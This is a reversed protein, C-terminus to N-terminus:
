GQEGGSQQLDANESYQHQLSTVELDVEDEPALRHLDWETIWSKVYERMRGGQVLQTQGETTHAWDHWAHAKLHLARITQYAEQIMSSTPSSLPTKDSEMFRIGLDAQDALLGDTETQTARLRSSIKGADDKGVLVEKKFDDTLAVVVGLGPFHPPQLGGMWRALESYSKARQKLSYRGILEAEDIFLMWGAYGAAKMLRVAFQFRQLALDRTSIKGFTYRGAAGCEKLLKKLEGVGIPDGTWFRTIRHKAEQDASMREYLFLTAAFRSDMQSEPNNLWASMAKYQPNWADCEEAIESLIDGRKQPIVASEIASQYMRIPNYLPTEKSIVVRSCIFRNELALHQLYELVHSKGSGFAGEIITGKSMGDHDPCQKTEEMLRIFRGRVEEQQCGFVTVIHRNPIGSRLGEIIKRPVIADAEVSPSSYQRGVSCGLDDSSPSLQVLPALPNPRSKDRVDSWIRLKLADYRELSRRKDILFEPPAVVVMMLGELEDSSDIFQRLMDYMDLTASPSYYFTTDPETSRKTVFYRAIDLVVVLGGQGTLRVWRAMSALIYRANHRAIKQFILAKKVGSILRLEGCLWGKVASALVQDSDSTGLQSLCISVMAMRFERCLNPDSDLSRELWTQLDRRLLPEKRGNLEAIDHFTFKTREEPIEYSNDTLLRVVFRYALEDWDIQRAIKHVLRDVMHVKTFRADAKSFLFGEEQSVTELQNLFPKHEDLNPLVVFKVSSGGHKQFDQLYEGRVIELWRRMDIYAPSDNHIITPEQGNTELTEQETLNSVTGGVDNESSSNTSPCDSQQDAGGFSQLRNLAEILKSMSLYGIFGPKEDRTGTCTPHGVYASERLYKMPRIQITKVM